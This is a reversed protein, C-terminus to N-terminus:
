GLIRTVTPSIDLPFRSAPSSRAAARPAMASAAALDPDVYQLRSPRALRLRDSDGNLDRRSVTRRVSSQNGGITTLETTAFAELTQGRLGLQIAKRALSM